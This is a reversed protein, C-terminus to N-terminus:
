ETRRYVTVMKGTYECRTKGIEELDGRDRLETLRPATLNRESTPAYGMRMMWVAIQKATGLQEKRFYELIQQYRRQRDVTENSEARTDHSVIQGPLRDIVETM